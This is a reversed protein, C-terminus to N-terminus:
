RSKIAMLLSFTFEKDNSLNFTNGNNVLVNIQLAANYEESYFLNQGTSVTITNGNITGKVWALTGFTSLIDKLYVTNNEGYIINVYGEQDVLDIQGTQSNYEIGKGGTRKYLKSKGAPLEAIIPFDAAAKMSPASKIMNVDLTRTVQMRESNQAFATM